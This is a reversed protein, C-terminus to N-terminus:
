KRERILRFRRGSFSWMQGLSADRRVHHLLAMGAHGLLYAWVLNALLKHFEIILEIALTESFGLLESAFWLAGSTAMTTILLLGLGHAAAALPGDDRYAPFTLRRTARGHLVVDEAFAHRRAASFWPFLAGFETGSRRVALICWFMFAFGLATLGSYEHVQFLLDEPRGPKPESMFLSTALQLLIALALGMHALRTAWGYREEPLAEIETKANM